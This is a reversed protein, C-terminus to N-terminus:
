CSSEEMLGWFLPLVSSRGLCIFLNNPCIPTTRWENWSSPIRQIGLLRRFVMADVDGPGGRGSPSALAIRGRFQLSGNSRFFPNTLDTLRLGPVPCCLVDSRPMLHRRAAQRQANALLAYHYHAWVRSKPQDSSIWSRSINIAHINVKM